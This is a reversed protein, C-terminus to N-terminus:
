EGRHHQIQFLFHRCRHFLELFAPQYAWQLKAYEDKAQKLIPIDPDADKWIACLLPNWNAGSRLKPKGVRPELKGDAM